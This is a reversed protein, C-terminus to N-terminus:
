ALMMSLGIITFLIIIAIGTAISWNWNKNSIRLIAWTAMIPAKIIMQLGMVLFVQIQTVDNTSRTILSSTSFGGIDEMSLSLVKNFLLERLNAAFNTSVNAILVAVLVSLILSGLAALVMLGGVSLIRNLDSGPTQILITIAQMYAPLQLELWVQGIIFVLVLTMFAKDRKTLNEFLKFM